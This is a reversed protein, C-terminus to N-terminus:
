QASNRPEIQSTMAKYMRRSCMRSLTYLTPLVRFFSPLQTDLHNAAINLAENTASILM